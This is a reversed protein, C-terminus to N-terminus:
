ISPTESAILKTPIDERVFLIIGGGNSNSDPRFPTNFGNIKFQGLPFSEYNKTESIMLSDVKVRVFEFLFEFKSRLSNINQPAIILKNVPKIRISNPEDNFSVNQRASNCEEVNLCGKNNGDIEYWCM